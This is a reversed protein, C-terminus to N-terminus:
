DTIRHSRGTQGVFSVLGPYRTGHHELNGQPGTDSMLNAYRGYDQFIPFEGHERVIGFWTTSEDATHLEEEMASDLSPELIGKIKLALDRSTKEHPVNGPALHHNRHTIQM